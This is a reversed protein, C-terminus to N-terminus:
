QNEKDDIDFTPPEYIPNILFKLRVLIDVIEITRRQIIANMIGLYYAKFNQRLYDGNNFLWQGIKHDKNIYSGLSLLEKQDIFSVFQLPLLNNISKPLPEPHSNLIVLEPKNDIAKLGITFYKQLFGGCLSSLFRRNRSGSILLDDFISLRLLDNLSFLGKNTNFIKENNWRGEMVLDDNIVESYSYSEQNEAFYNFFTDGDAFRNLEKTALYLSSLIRFGIVQISDRSVALTPILNDQLYIIGFTLMQAPSRTHLGTFAGHHNFLENKLALKPHREYESVSNPVNIGNHILLIGNLYMNYNQHDIGFIEELYSRKFSNLVFESIDIAIDIDESKGSTPNNKQRTIRLGIKNPHGSTFQYDFRIQNQISNSTFELSVIILHGKLNEIKAAEVNIYTVRIGKLSSEARDLAHSLQLRQDESFDYVENKAIDNNFVDSFDLGIKQSNYRIDIPSALVFNRLSSRINNEIWNNDHERSIRVSISTGIAERFNTKGNELPMARATHVASKTQLIYQGDLSEMTLRMSFPDSRPEVIKMSKSSIEIRDGLIFCSLLGIGFRSIPKFEQGTIQKIHYQILRFHDSAYYSNGKKLFHNHLVYEGIGMGNDTVEVWLYGWIDREVRVTISNSRFEANEYIANEYFERMRSSDIANQLLERIFVFPNSYLSQGVLLKVVQNQDLSLSYDGAMFNQPIVGSRDIKEPLKYTNWRISCHNLISQCDKLEQDILDLFKNINKYVQPHNPSAKIKITPYQGSSINFGDTAMHKNWEVKSIEELKNKPSDLELYEYLSQPTRTRDFDLIDGLRLLIACFRLDAEGGWYDIKFKNDDNLAFTDSNHSEAIDGVVKKLSNGSYPIKDLSEVFNWVRKAHMWRCYEQRLSKNLNNGAEVFELKAKYNNNIYEQFTLEDVIKDHEDDTFVMGIDHYAVSLIIIAAELNTLKEVSSGLLEGIIRLINYLHQGDHLTYKPFAKLVEKSKEVCWELNAALDIKSPQLKLYHQYIPLKIFPELAASM